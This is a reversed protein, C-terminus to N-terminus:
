VKKKYWNYWEYLKKVMRDTTMLYVHVFWSLRKAKIHTIINKNIILNNLEGNIKIRWM